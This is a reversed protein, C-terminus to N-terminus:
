LQAAPPASRLLPSLIAHESGLAALVAERTALSYLYADLADALPQLPLTRELEDCRARLVRAGTAEANAAWTQLLRSKGIGAEGEVVVLEVRGAAARELAADLAALERDRGPLVPGVTASTPERGPAAQLKSSVTEQRLIRLYIS